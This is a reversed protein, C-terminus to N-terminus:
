VAREGAAEPRAPFKALQMRTIARVVMIALVAATVFLADSVMYERIASRMEGITGAEQYSDSAIQLGVISALWLAWWVNILARSERGTVAHPDRRSAAWIDAAVGYPIWIMGIPIFWGGISWGPGKRQLDPAFIGANERVRRFWLIFAFAATVLALGHLAGAFWVTEGILTLEAETAYRASDRAGDLRDGARVWSVISWLDAAAVLVLAAM